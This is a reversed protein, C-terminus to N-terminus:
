VFSPSAIPRAKQEVQERQPISSPPPLVAKPFYQQPENYHWFELFKTTIPLTGNSVYDASGTPPQDSQCGIVSVRSNTSTSHCAKSSSEVRMGRNGERGRRGMNGTNGRHVQGKIEDGDDDM